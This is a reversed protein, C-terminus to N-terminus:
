SLFYVNVCLLHTIFPLHSKLSLLAAVFVYFLALFLSIHLDLPVLLVVYFALFSCLLLYLYHLCFPSRLFGFSFCLLTLLCFSILTMYVVLTLKPPEPMEQMPEPPLEPEKEPEPVLPPEPESAQETKQESEQGNEPQNELENEQERVNQLEDDTEQPIDNEPNQTESNENEGNEVLSPNEEKGGSETESSGTVSDYDTEAVDKKNEEFADEESNKQDTELTKETEEPLEDVSKETEAKNEVEKTTEVFRLREVSMTCGIFIATFVSAIIINLRLRTFNKM